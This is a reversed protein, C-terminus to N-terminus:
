PITRNAAVTGGGITTLEIGLANFHSLQMATGAFDQVAIAQGNAAWSLTSYDGAQIPLAYQRKKEVSFVRPRELQHNYANFLLWRSDASWQPLFASDGAERPAVALLRAAQQARSYLWLETGNHNFVVYQTDDSSVIETVVGPRPLVSALEACITANAHKTESAKAPTLDCQAPAAIERAQLPSLLTLSLLLAITFNLQKM